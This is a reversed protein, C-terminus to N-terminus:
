GVLLIAPCLITKFKVNLILNPVKDKKHKEREKEGWGKRVLYM